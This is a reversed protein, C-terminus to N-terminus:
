ILDASAKLGRFGAHSGSLPGLKVLFLAQSDIANLRELGNVAAVSRRPGLVPNNLRAFLGTGSDM